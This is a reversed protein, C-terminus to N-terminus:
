LRLGLPFMDCCSAQTPDEFYVYKTGPHTKPFAGRTSENPEDFGHKRAVKEDAKIICSEM